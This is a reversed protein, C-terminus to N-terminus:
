VSPSPCSRVRTQVPPFERHSQAARGGGEHLDSGMGGVAGVAADNPKEVSSRGTPARSMATWQRRSRPQKRQLGKCVMRHMNPDGLPEQGSDADERSRKGAQALLRSGAGMAYVIKEECHIEGAATGDNLALPLDRETVALGHEQAARIAIETDGACLRHAEDAEAHRALVKRQEYRIHVVARHADDRGPGM